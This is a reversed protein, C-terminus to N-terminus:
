LIEIMKQIRLITEEQGLIDMIEFPSPSAAKGSLAVRLPWLVEGRGEKQAYPMILRETTEKSFEKKDTESLIELVTVLRKKIEKFGGKGKWRLLDKEFSPLQIVFDFQDNIESFNNMRERALSLIKNLDYKGSYYDSSIYEKAMAALEDLSLRKIYERNFWNLKEFDCVAGGKQVREISFLGILEDLSLIEREDVPHWGLLGAFNLIAHTIYGKERYASLPEAGHRKSLKSKDKGLLLPLHAYIPQVAGIARQILIQRPTNSIHDEGRIVHTIGTEFDDVVVAVHYLPENFDKAIVFNGLDTLDMEVRGRILDDFHIRGGPNKFRIVEKRAGEEETSVFAYGDDVLKKLYKKYLDLRDSQRLFEDWDLKLWKLGSVIDDEFEKKSREKDTDEIRLAFKGNNKKAFLYNFLATRVSAFNLLGTPSPAFRTKIEKPM